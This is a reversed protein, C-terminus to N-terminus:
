LPEFNEQFYAAAVLWRDHHDKPNRAIKDGLQPSGHTEDAVSVSVDTM